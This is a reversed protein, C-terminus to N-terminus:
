KASSKKTARSRCLRAVIVLVVGGVLSFLLEEYRILVPGMGFDIRGVHVIIGGIFAGALGLALRGLKGFWSTNLSTMLGALAGVLVGMIVWAVIEDRTRHTLRGEDFRRWLNEFGKGMARSASQVSAEADKAAGKVTEKTREVVGAADAAISTAPFCALSLQCLFFGCVALNRVSSTSCTVPKM